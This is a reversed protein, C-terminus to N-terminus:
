QLPQSRWVSTQEAESEDVHPQTCERAFLITICNKWPPLPWGLFPKSKQCFACTLESTDRGLRKDQMCSHHEGLLLSGLLTPVLRLPLGRSGSVGYHKARLGRSHSGLALHPFLLVQQQLGKLAPDERRQKHSAWRPALDQCVFMNLTLAELCEERPWSLVLAPLTPAPFSLVRSRRFHSFFSKECTKDNGETQTLESHGLAPVERGLLSFSWQGPFSLFVFHNNLVLVSQPRRNPYCSKCLEM